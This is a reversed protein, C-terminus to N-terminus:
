EVKMKIQFVPYRIMYVSQCGKEASKLELTQTECKMKQIYNLKELLEERTMKTGGNINLIRGNKKLKNM